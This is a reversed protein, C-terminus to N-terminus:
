PVFGAIGLVTPLVSGFVYGGGAAVIVLLVVELGSRLPEKKTYRSKFVGLGFMVIASLGIAVPLATGVPLFFFPGIPVLAALLFAASLILAGQLPGAGHEVALGLEKEVMTRLLVDPSTALEATVREAAERSLGDRELLLAVEARAELPHEAVERREVAIQADFIERQTKSSIYEGAGMSIIEALSAALGAVLVPYTERSVTAVTAVVALISTVGDQAGFMAERIEGLVDAERREDDLHLILAERDLHRPHDRRTM